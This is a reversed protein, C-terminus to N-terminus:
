KLIIYVQHMSFEGNTNENVLSTLHYIRYQYNLETLELYRDISPRQLAKWVLNPSLQVLDLIVTYFREFYSDEEISESYTPLVDLLDLVDQQFVKGISCNSKKFHNSHTSSEEDTCPVNGPLVNSNETEEDHAARKMSSAMDMVFDISSEVEESSGMTVNFLYNV